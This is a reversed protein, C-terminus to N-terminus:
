ISPGLITFNMNQERAVYMWRENWAASGNRPNWKPSVTACRFAPMAGHGGGGAYRLRMCWRTLGGLRRGDARKALWRRVGVLPQRVQLM